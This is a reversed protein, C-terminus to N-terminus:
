RYDSIVPDSRNRFRDPLIVPKLLPGLSYGITDTTDRTDLSPSDLLHDMTIRCPQPKQREGDRTKKRSRREEEPVHVVVTFIGFLGRVTAFKQAM